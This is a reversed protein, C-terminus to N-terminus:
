VVVRSAINSVTNTSRKKALKSITTPMLWRSAAPQFQRLGHHESCNTNADSRQRCDAALDTKEAWDVEAYRANKVFGSRTLTGDGEFGNLYPMAFASCAALSRAVALRSRAAVLAFHPHPSLFPRQSRVCFSVFSLLNAAQCVGQCRFSWVLAKTGIGFLLVLGHTVDVSSRHITQFHKVGFPRNSFRVNRLSGASEM